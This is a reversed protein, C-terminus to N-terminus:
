VFLARFALRIINIHSGASVLEQSYVVSFNFTLKSLYFLELETKRDDNKHHGKQRELFMKCFENM